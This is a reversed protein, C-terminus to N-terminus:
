RSATPFARRRSQPHVHRRQTNRQEGRQRRAPRLAHVARRLRARAPERDRLQPHQRRASGQRHASQPQRFHRARRAGTARRQARGSQCLDSPRLGTAVGARRAHRHRPARSAGAGPAARPRLGGIARRARGRAAVAAIADRHPAHLLALVRTSHSENRNQAFKDCALRPYRNGPRARMKPENTAKNGPRIRSDPVIIQTM